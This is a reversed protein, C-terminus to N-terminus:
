GRRMGDDDGVSLRITSASGAGLEHAPNARGDVPHQSPLGAGDTGHDAARVGASLVLFVAAALLWLVHFWSSLSGGRGKPCRIIPVIRNM